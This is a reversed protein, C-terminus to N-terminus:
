LMLCSAVKNRINRRQPPQHLSYSSHPIGMIFPEVASAHTELVKQADCNFYGAKERWDGLACEVTSIHYADLM